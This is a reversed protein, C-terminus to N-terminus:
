QTTTENNEDHLTDSEAGNEDEDESHHVSIWEGEDDDGVADEDVSYEEDEERQIYMQLGDQIEQKGVWADDHGGILRSRDCEDSLRTMRLYELSLDNKLMLLLNLAAEDPDTEPDLTEDYLPIVIAELHLVRLTKAQTALFTTLDEITTSLLALRIERFCHDVNGSVLISTLVPLHWYFSTRPHESLGVGKVRVTYLELKQHKTDITVRRTFNPVPVEYNRCERTSLLEFDPKLKGPASLLHQEHLVRLEDEDHKTDKDWHIHFAKLALGALQAAKLVYETTHVFPARPGDPEVTSGYYKECGYGKRPPRDDSDSNDLPIWPVLLDYVGLVPKVALKHLNELARVLLENREEWQEFMSKLRATRQEVPDETLREAYIFHTAFTLRKVYRGLPHKSLDLLGQLSYSSWIFSLDALCKLGFQHSSLANTRRCVRRINMVDRDSVEEVIDNFIEPPLSLLSSM